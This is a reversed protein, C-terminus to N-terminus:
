TVADEIATTKQSRMNYGYRSSSSNKFPVIGITTKGQAWVGLSIFLSVIAIYGTKMLM